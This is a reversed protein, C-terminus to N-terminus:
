GIAPKRRYAAAFISFLLSTTLLWLSAGGGSSGGGTTASTNSWVLNYSNKSPSGGSKSSDGNEIHLYYRGAALEEILRENNDQSDAEAIVEQNDNYLVANLDGKRHQFLLDIVVKGSRTVDFAFWDDDLQIGDGAQNRLLRDEELLYAHAMDDNHEYADDPTLRCFPYSFDPPTMANGGELFRQEAAAANDLSGIPDLWYKLATDCTGTGEWSAALWGYWDSQDNGCAARGGHLQGVVLNEDSWLGSGSSGAETSGSDWDIVRLHNGNAPHQSRYFTILPADNDIAVKQADGRPHHISYTSNPVTERADWGAWYVNYEDPPSQNLELLSFDSIEWTALLRAGPQSDSLSASGEACGNRHYNWYVVVKAAQENNPVCHNATLLLPRGDEATNNLLVGSCLRGDVTIMATARVAESVDALDSCQSDLHCSSSDGFGKNNFQQLPNFGINAASLRLSFESLEVEAVRVRLRIQDSEIIPTSLTAAQNLEAGYPGRQVDSYQDFVILEASDPFHYQEFVLELSTAGDSSFVAQWELQGGGIDQWASDADIAINLAHQNAYRASSDDENSAQGAEARPLDYYRTAHVSSAIAFLSFTLIYKTIKNTKIIM